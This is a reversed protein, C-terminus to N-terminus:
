AYYPALSPYQSETEPNRSDPTFRGIGAHTVDLIAVDAATKGAVQIAEEGNQTEGVVTM